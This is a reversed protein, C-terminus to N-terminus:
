ANRPTLILWSWSLNSSSLIAYVFFGAVKLKRIGLSWLRRSPSYFKFSDSCPNQQKHKERQLKKRELSSQCQAIEGRRKCKVKKIKANEDHSFIMSQFPSECVNRTKTETAIRDSSSAKPSRHHGIFTMMDNFGFIFCLM